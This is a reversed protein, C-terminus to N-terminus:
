PKAEMTRCSAKKRGSNTRSQRTGKGECAPCTVIEPVPITLSIKGRGNCNGCKVKRRKLRRLRSRPM